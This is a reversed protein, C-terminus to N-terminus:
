NEHSVIMESLCIVQKQKSEEGMKRGQWGKTYVEEEPLGTEIKM